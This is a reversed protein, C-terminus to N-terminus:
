SGVGDTVLNTVDELFGGTSSRAAVLEVSELIEGDELSVVWASSVKDEGLSGESSADVEADLAVAVKVVVGGIEDM